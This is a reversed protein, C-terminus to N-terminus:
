AVWYHTVFLLINMIFLALSCGTILLNAFSHKGWVGLILFVPFVVLMYRPTATLPEIFGQPYSISFLAIALGFFTYHLPLRKWGVILVSLFLLVFVIDLLNLLFLDPTQTHFLALLAAFITQLPFTLYRHWYHAEQSSFAFPDGWTTYLYVMFTILGLPVCLLSFGAYLRERWTTQRSRLWLYVVVLLPLLLLIGQSRTLAALFGCLGALWYREQRLALFVLLCLLLFLSEAYGLFFFIAYPSFALYVLVRRITDRDFSEKQLLFSLVVLALFFFLNALVLGAVYYSIISGGFIVGVFHMVLPWLPFFVTEHLSSYGHAALQVYVISDWHYWSFVFCSVFDCRRPAVEGALPFRLALATVLIVVLRSILFIRLAEM